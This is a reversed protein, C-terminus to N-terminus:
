FFLPGSDLYTSDGCKGLHTMIPCFLKQHLMRIKIELKVHYKNRKRFSTSHINQNYLMFVDTILFAAFILFIELSIKLNILLPANLLQMSMNKGNKSGGGERRPCNKIGQAHVFVSMKLGKGRM